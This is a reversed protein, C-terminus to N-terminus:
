AIQSFLLPIMQFNMYKDIIFFVDATGPIGIIKIDSDIAKSTNQNLIKLLYWGVMLIPKMLLMKRNVNITTSGVCHPGM